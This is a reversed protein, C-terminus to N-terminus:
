DWVYKEDFEIGYQKLFACYEKQFSKTRHHEEQEDIYHLLADLHNPSVSFAGNASQFFYRFIPFPHGPPM